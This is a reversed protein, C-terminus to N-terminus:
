KGVVLATTTPFYAVRTENRRGLTMRVQAGDHATAVTETAMVTWWVGGSQIRTGATINSATNTNM